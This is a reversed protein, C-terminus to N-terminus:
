NVRPYNKQRWILKTYLIWFKSLLNLQKTKYIKVELKNFKSTLEKSLNSLFFNTFEPKNSRINSLVLHRIEYKTFVLYDKNAYNSNIWIKNVINFRDVISQLSTLSFSSTAQNEVGGVYTTLPLKCYCVKTILAVSFFLAFDENRTMGKTFGGVQQFIDKKVITSSTHLFVHPNNFFHIISIDESIKDTTRKSISDDANKVYGACCYMGAEPYKYHAKVMYELYEPSWLDDADLFAILEHTANKVGENRAVSVGQNKQSIIKIRQDKFNNSITNVSDDTSGDDIIILEFNNFSQSLVSEITNKITTEKNFLPIVISIM